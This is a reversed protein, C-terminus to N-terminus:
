NVEMLENVLVLVWYLNGRDFFLFINVVCFVKIMIGVM